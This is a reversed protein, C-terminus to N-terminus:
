EYIPTEFDPASKSAEASSRAIIIAGTAADLQSLAAEMEARELDVAQM